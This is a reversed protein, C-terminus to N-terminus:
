LSPYYDSVSPLLVHVEMEQGSLAVVNIAGQHLQILRAAIALSVGGLTGDVEGPLNVSGESELMSGISEAKVDSDFVHFIVSGWADNDVSCGCKLLVKSARTHRIFYDLINHFIQSIKIPDGIMQFPEASVLIFEREDFAELEGVCSSLEVRVADSLECPQWNFNLDKSDLQALEILGNVIKLLTKGNRYISDLANKDRDGLGIERHLLRRSFGIISNLPTRLQHSINALFRTKAQNSNNAVSEARQRTDVEREIIEIHHAIETEYYEFQRSFAHLTFSLMAFQGMVHTYNQVRRLPEPTLVENAFGLINLVLLGVLVTFATLTWIVFIRKGGLLASLGPILLLWGIVVNQLGGSTAVGVVVAVLYGALFSHIAWKIHHQRLLLISITTLLLLFSLSAIRPLILWEIARLLLLVGFILAFIQAFKLQRRVDGSGTDLLGPRESHLNKNELSM